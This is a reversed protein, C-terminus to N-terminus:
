FRFFSKWPRWADCDGVDTTMGDRTVAAVEGACDATVAVGDDITDIPPLCYM